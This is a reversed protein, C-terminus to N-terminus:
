QKSINPSCLSLFLLIWDKGFFSVPKSARVITQKRYITTWIIFGLSAAIPLACSLGQILRVTNNENMSNSTPYELESFTPRTSFSPDQFPIPAMTPPLSHIIEPVSLPSRSPPIPTNGENNNDIEDDTEEEDRDIILELETIKKKWFNTKSTDDVFTEAILTQLIYHTSNQLRTGTKGDLMVNGSIGHIATNVLENQFGEGDIFLSNSRSTEFLENNRQNAEVSNCIALGAMIVSEYEYPVDHNLFAPHLFTDDELLQDLFKITLMKHLPDSVMTELYLQLVDMSDNHIKKTKKKSGTVSRKQIVGSKSDLIVGDMFERLQKTFDHYRGNPNTHSGSGNATFISTQKYADVLPDSSDFIWDDPALFSDGFIWNTNSNKGAAGQAIAEEMLSHDNMYEGYFVVFVHDIGSSKVFAIAESLNSLDPLLSVSELEFNNHLEAAAETLDELYHYGYSDAVYVVALQNLNLEQHLYRILARSHGKTSPTTRSFLPYDIVDDLFSSTSSGSIQPYGNSATFRSTTAAVISLTSGLFVCPPIDVNIMRRALRTTAVGINLRTDVFDIGFKVPCKEDLGEIESIISGNGSNLHQIALIKALASEFGRRVALKSGSIDKTFPTLSVMNCNAVFAGDLSQRHGSLLNGLTWDAM